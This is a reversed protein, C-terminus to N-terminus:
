SVPLQSRAVKMTRIKPHHEPYFRRAIAMGQDYSRRAATFEGMRCLVQALNNLCDAIRHHDPGHHHGFIRIAEEEGTPDQAFAAM